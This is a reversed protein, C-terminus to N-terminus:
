NAHLATNASGPEDRTWSSPFVCKFPVIWSTARHLPTEAPFLKSWFSQYSSGRFRDSIRFACVNKLLRSESLAGPPGSRMVSRTYSLM